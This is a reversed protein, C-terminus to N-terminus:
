INFAIWLIHVKERVYKSEQKATSQHIQFSDLRSGTPDM